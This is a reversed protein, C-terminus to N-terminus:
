HGRHNGGTIPQECIPCVTMGAWIEDLEKQAQAASVDAAQLHREASQLASQKTVYVTRLTRLSELRNSSSEAQQLLSEAEPIKSFMEVWERQRQLAARAETHRVQLTRLNSIREASGGVSHLVAEAADLDKTAHLVGAARSVDDSHKQYSSRLINLTSLRKSNAEIISVEAAINDVERYRDLEDSLRTVTATVKGYQRYLDLLTDYRKQAKEIDQLDEELDPIVALEELRGGLEELLRTLNWHTIKFDSLRKSKDYAKDIESVLYECAELQQKLVELDNFEQLQADIREIDKEAQSREQRAAYTDKAVSKTALDVVETGALKGLIKAGASATESILFPAELQFAFNLATEFDGFTQKTIGLAQKVEEPVEAKEFPEAITSLQYTTKGKRRTKTVTVGTDLLIEVKAEGVAENVFAEGSPEGFAVWKLARLIATKGSDSPGTIVNLGPCLRIFSSVHSQFGTIRIEEIQPL